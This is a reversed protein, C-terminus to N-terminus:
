AHSQLQRIHHPIISHTTVTSSPTDASSMSSRERNLLLCYMVKGRQALYVAKPLFRLSAFRHKLETGVPTPATGRVANGCSATPTKAQQLAKTVSSLFYYSTDRCEGRCTAPPSLPRSP